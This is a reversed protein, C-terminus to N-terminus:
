ARSRNRRPLIEKSLIHAMDKGDRLFRPRFQDPVTQCRWGAHCYHTMGIDDPWFRRGNAFLRILENRGTGQVGPFTDLFQQVTKRGPRFRVQCDEAFSGQLSQHLFELDSAWVDMISPIDNVLVYEEVDIM